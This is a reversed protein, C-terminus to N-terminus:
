DYHTATHRCGGYLQQVAATRRVEDLCLADLVPMAGSGFGSRFVTMGLFWGFTSLTTTTEEESKGTSAASVGPLLSLEPASHALFALASGVSCLWLVEAKGWRDAALGWLPAVVISVVSQVAFLAGIQTATMGRDEFYLSLFRGQSTLQLFFVFYLARVRLLQGELWRLCVCVARM